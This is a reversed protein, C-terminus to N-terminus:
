GHRLYPSAEVTLGPRQNSPFNLLGELANVGVDQDEVV